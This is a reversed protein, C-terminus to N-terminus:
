RSRSTKAKRPAKKVQEHLFEIMAEHTDFPGHLRGRKIDERGKALERDIARRQEPTHEDDTSPLKSIISIVGVSVKFELKDGPKFGARRRVSRPVILDSKSSVPTTM